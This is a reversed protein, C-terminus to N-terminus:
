SRGPPDLLGYEYARAIAASRNPVGLKSLINSVHNKVTAEAIVLENHIERDTLGRALLKLVEKERPTLAERDSEPPDPPRASLPLAYLSHVEALLQRRPISKNVVAHAGAARAPEILEPLGTLVLIRTAPAEVVLRRVADVGSQLNGFWALDFILVDPRQALTRHVADHLTGSEFVLELNPDSLVISRLGERIIEDDDAIAVQIRPMPEEVGTIAPNVSIAEDGAFGRM